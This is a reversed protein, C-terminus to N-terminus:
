YDRPSTRTCVNACIWDADDGRSLDKRERGFAIRVKSADRDSKSSDGYLYLTPFNREMFDEAEQLASFRLFGFGRSQEIDKVNAPPAKFFTYSAQSQSTQRDRIVRVDELGEVHYYQELESTIQKSM